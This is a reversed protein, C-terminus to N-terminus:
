RGGKTRLDGGEIKVAKPSAKPKNAAGIKGTGLSRYADADSKTSNNKTKM